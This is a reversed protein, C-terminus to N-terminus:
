ENVLRSNACDFFSTGVLKENYHFDMNYLEEKYWYEIFYLQIEDGVEVSDYFPPYDFIKTKDKYSVTVYYRNELRTGGESNRVEDVKFEKSEVIGTDTYYVRDALLMKTSDVFLAIIIYLFVLLAIPIFIAVVINQM